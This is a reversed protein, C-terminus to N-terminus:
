SVSIAGSVRRVGSSIIAYAQVTQVVKAFERKYNRRFQRLRVPTSHFLEKLSVCTGVPRPTTIQSALVGDPDFELLCGTPCSQHRTSVTLKAVACLSSLAEGRFGFTKVTAVDDFDEIKSTHHKLAEIVFFIEGM